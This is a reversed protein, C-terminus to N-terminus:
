SSSDRRHPPRNVLKAPPPPLDRGLRQRAEEAAAFVSEAVFGSRAVLRGLERRDEVVAVELQDVLFSPVPHSQNFSRRHSPTAAIWEAMRDAVEARGRPSREVHLQVAQALWGLFSRPSEGVSDLDAVYASRALDWVPPRWYVSLRLTEPSSSGDGPATVDVVRRVGVGNGKRAPSPHEHSM